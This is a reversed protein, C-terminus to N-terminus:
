PPRARSIFPKKILQIVVLSTTLIVNLLYPINQTWSQAIENKGITQPNKVVLARPNSIKIKKKGRFSRITTWLDAKKAMKVMRVNKSLGQSVSSLASDSCATRPLAEREVGGSCAIMMEVKRRIEEDDNLCWINGGHNGKPRVNHGRGATDSPAM